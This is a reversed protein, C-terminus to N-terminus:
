TSPWPTAITCAMTVPSSTLYSKQLMIKLYCDTCREHTDRIKRDPHAMHALVKSAIRIKLFTVTLNNIPGCMTVCQEPKRACGVRSVMGDSQRLAGAVVQINM